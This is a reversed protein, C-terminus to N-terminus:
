DLVLLLCVVMKERRAYLVLTNSSSSSSSSGSQTYLLQISQPRKRRKIIIMGVSLSAATVASQIIHTSCVCCRGRDYAATASVQRVTPASEKTERGGAAVRTRRYTRVHTHALMNQPGSNSSNLPNIVWNLLQAQQLPHVSVSDTEVNERRRRRRRTTTM